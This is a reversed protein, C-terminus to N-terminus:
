HMEASDFFFSLSSLAAASLDLIAQDYEHIAIELARKGDEYVKSGGGIITRLLNGIWNNVVSMSNIEGFFDRSFYILSSNFYTVIATLLDISKEQMLSQTTDLRLKLSPNEVIRVAQFEIRRLYTHFEDARDSENDLLKSNTPVQSTLYKCSLASGMQWGM